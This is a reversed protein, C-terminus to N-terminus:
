SGQDSKRNTVASAPQEDEHDLLGAQPKDATEKM